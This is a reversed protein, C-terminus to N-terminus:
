PQGEKAAMKTQAPKSTRFYRRKLIISFAGVGLSAAAAIAFWLYWLSGSRDVVPMGVPESLGFASMRFDAPTKDTLKISILKITIEMNPPAEPVKYISLNNVETPFSMGSIMEGYSFKDTGILFKTEAGREVVRWNHAPDVTIRQEINNDFTFDIRLLGTLDDYQLARMPYKPNNQVSDLVYGLYSLMMYHVGFGGQNVLPLKQKGLAWKGLAYASDTNSKSVTFHYESNDCSLVVEPMKQVNEHVHKQELIMNDGLRVIRDRRTFANFPRKGVSGPAVAYRCECEEEIKSSLAKYKELSAPIEAQAKALWVPDIPPGEGSRTAPVWALMLFFAVRFKLAPM